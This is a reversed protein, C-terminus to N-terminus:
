LWQTFMQVRQLDERSLQLMTDYSAQDSLEFLLDYNARQKPMLFAVNSTIFGQPLTFDCICMSLETRGQHVGINPVNGLAIRGSGSALIFPCASRCTPKSLKTPFDHLRYNEAMCTAIGHDAIWWSILWAAVANGGPSDVCLTTVTKQKFLRKLDVYTSYGIFGRILLVDKICRENNSSCADAFMVNNLRINGDVNLWRAEFQQGKEFYKQGTCIYLPVMLVLLTRSLYYSIWSWNFEM